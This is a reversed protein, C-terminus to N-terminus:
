FVHCLSPYLSNVDLVVGKGVEKTRYKPNLYTFGGKYCKRLDEDIETLDPFLRNFKRFTMIRKFDNLANSGQTMKTLDEDFLVKLAKAVILVDHAIYEKEQATLRHGRYRRKNYDIELKSLPLNFSKAIMDVSFPIIKLSDYFTVKNWTKDKSFYLTISYFQGMEGILTTFTKERIDKRDSVHTFGNKLAWYIIFEGDFKLNHFYCICNHQEKLYEIFSEINNDIILNDENGIECIAWAWVYTEDKLWTCTEFDAVYRRM